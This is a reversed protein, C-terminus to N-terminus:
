QYRLSIIYDGSGEGEILESSQIIGEEIFRVSRFLSKRQELHSGKLYYGLNKLYESSLSRVIESLRNDRRHILYPIKMSNLWTTRQVVLADIPFNVTLEKAITSNLLSNILRRLNNLICYNFNGGTYTVEHFPHTLVFRNHGAPSVLVDVGEPISILPKSLGENRPFSYAGKTIFDKFDLWQAKKRYDDLLLLHGQSSKKYEDNIAKKYSDRNGYEPHPHMNIHLKESRIFYYGEMAIRTSAEILNEFYTSLGALQKLNLGNKYLNLRVEKGDFRAYTGQPTFDVFLNKKGDILYVAKIGSVFNFSEQVLVM